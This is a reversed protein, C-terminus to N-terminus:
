FHSVMSSQDRRLAIQGSHGVPMGGNRRKQDTHAISRVTAPVEVDRARLSHATEEKTEATAPEEV